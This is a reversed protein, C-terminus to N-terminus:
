DVIEVKCVDARVDEDEAADYMLIEAGEPLYVVLVTTGETTGKM